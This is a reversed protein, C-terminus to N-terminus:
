RTFGIGSLGNPFNFIFVFIKSTTKTEQRTMKISFSSIKQCHVPHDHNTFDSIRLLILCRKRCFDCRSRFFMNKHLNKCQFRGTENFINLKKVM